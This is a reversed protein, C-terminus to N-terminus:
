QYIEVYDSSWTQWVEEAIDIYKDLDLNDLLKIDIEELDEQHIEIKNQSFDESLYSPKKKNARGNTSKQIYGLDILLQRIEADESKMQNNVVYKALVYDSDKVLYMRKTHSKDYVHM